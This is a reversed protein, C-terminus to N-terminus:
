NGLEINSATTVRSILPFITSVAFGHMEATRSTTADEALIVEYGHEWAQRATSEVGMNTAVGGLVVTRVGRRRLNFDLATGYFAGWQHKTILLDTLGALGDVLDSWGPPLGGLLLSTPRDVPQRLADGGDAAFSVNVLVVLAGAQRFRAALDRGVQAVDHGSRPALPSGLIAKQLDILVLATTTPDLRIMLMGKLVLPRLAMETKVFSCQGVM